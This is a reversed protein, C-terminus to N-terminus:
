LSKRYKTGSEDKLIIEHPKIQDLWVKGLGPTDKVISNVTHVQNNILIKDENVGDGFMVGTISLSDVLQKVPDVPDVNSEKNPLFENLKQTDHTYSSPPSQQLDSPLTLVSSIASNDNKLDLVSGQNIIKSAMHALSNFLSQNIPNDHQYPIPNDRTSDLNKEETRDSSDDLLDLSLNLKQTSPPPSDSAPESYPNTLLIILITLVTGFLTGSILLIFFPKNSSQKQLPAHEEPNPFPAPKATSPASQKQLEKLADHILSM